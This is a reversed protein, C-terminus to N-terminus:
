AMSEEFLSACRTKRLNVDSDSSNEVFFSRGEDDQEGM